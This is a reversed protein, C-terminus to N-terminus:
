LAPPSPPSKVSGAEWVLKELASLSEDRVPMVTLGQTRTFQPSLHKSTLIFARGDDKLGRLHGKEIHATEDPFGVFPNPLM